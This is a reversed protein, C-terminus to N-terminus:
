GADPQNEPAAASFEDLELCADNIRQITPFTSMDVAYRGANYVQPVLCLDALTPADGHSFKGTQPDRALLNELAGLGELVWHRYWADRREKSQGLKHELYHVVRLNTIPHIDCAVAQALARVRARELPTKPLLPPEPHTEDLYEIIALSQTLVNGNDVLAPILAQPNLTQYDASHQQGGDKVLHVPRHEVQVGKLNLAIRVRYAASSRWYTYLEM